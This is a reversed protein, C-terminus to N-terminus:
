APLAPGAPTPSSSSSRAACWWRSQRAVPSSTSPAPTVTATATVLTVPVALAPRGYVVAHEGLLIAQGPASATAARLAAM